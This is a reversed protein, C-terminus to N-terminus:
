SRLCFSPLQPVQRLRKFRPPSAISGLCCRKAASLSAARATFGSRPRDAARGSNERPLNRARNRSDARMM